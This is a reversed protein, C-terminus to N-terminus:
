LTVILACQWTLERGSLVKATTLLYLEFLGYIGGDDSSGYVGDGNIIMVFVM